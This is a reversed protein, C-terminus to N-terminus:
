SASQGYTFDAVKTENDGVTISQTMTGYTEHWAEIVYEGPPLNEISFTGNDGTVNYYPHDLVGAYAGMWPHVDCKIRVMVEPVKFSQERVDGKQPM